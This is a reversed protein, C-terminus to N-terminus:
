KKRADAGFTSCIFYNNKFEIVSQTQIVGCNECKLKVSFHFGKQREKRLSNCPRHGAFKRISKFQRDFETIAKSQDVIKKVSTDVAEKIVFGELLKLDFLFSNTKLEVSDLKKRIRARMMRKNALFTNRENKNLPRMKVNGNKDTLVQGTTPDIDIVKVSDVPECLEHQGSLYSRQSDTLIM